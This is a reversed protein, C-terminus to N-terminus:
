LKFHLSTWWANWPFPALTTPLNLLLTFNATTHSSQGIYTGLHPCPFFPVCRPRCVHGPDWDHLVTCAVGLSWSQGTSRQNESLQLSGKTWIFGQESASLFLSFFFFTESQFLYTYACAGLTQVTHRGARGRKRRPQGPPSNQPLGTPFGCAHIVPAPPPPHWCLARVSLENEKLKKGLESLVWIHDRVGRDRKGRDKRM